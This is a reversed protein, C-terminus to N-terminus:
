IGIQRAEAPNNNAPTGHARRLRALLILSGLVLLVAAYSGPEPTTTFNGFTRTDFEQQTPIGSGNTDVGYIRDDYILEYSYATDAALTGGPIVVSATSSALFNDAFVDAGTGVNYVNFFVFAQSAAGNPTFGNFNVTDSLLPNLGQLANFSGATLSPTNGYAEATYDIGVTSSPGSPGSAQVTYTGFPYAAELAPLDALYPTQYYVNPGGFSGPSLAQPSGPGPYTLTGSTFDGATPMYAYASFFTGFPLVTSPGTQDNEINWGLDFSSLDAKSPVGFMMLAVAGGLLTRVRNTRFEM